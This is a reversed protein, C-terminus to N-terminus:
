LLNYHMYISTNYVHIGVSMTYDNETAGPLWGAKEIMTTDFKGGQEVQLLRM